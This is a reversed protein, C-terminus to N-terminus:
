LELRALGLGDKGYNNGCYLMYLFHNHQFVQPYCQEKSDWGEKSPEIGVTHDKRIWNLGDNSVAYGIRYSNGKYCYWMHYENGRKYVTPRAIAYENETEFNICIHNNRKWNIGDLSEAYKILYYHKVGTQTKEWSTFSTYWMKWLNNEVLVCCSGCSLYDDNNRELIPARSVRKFSGDLNQEALGIQNQFPTLVTPMWGTYYMFVKNNRKVLYPYSVGNEDFAGIEGFSLVPNLTTELLKTPNNIDIRIRGILSRNYKDRGTVYIDFLSSDDIQMAYSSGTCTSMWYISEDPSIIKGLKEWSASIEIKSDQSKVGQRM